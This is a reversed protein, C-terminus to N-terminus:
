LIDFTFTYPTCWALLCPIAQESSLGITYVIFFSLFHLIMCHKVLLSRVIECCFHRDYLMHFCISFNFLHRFISIYSFLSVHGRLSVCTKYSKAKPFTISVRPICSKAYLLQGICWNDDKENFSLLMISRCNLTQAVINYM